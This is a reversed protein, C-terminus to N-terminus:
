LGCIEAFVARLAHYAPTETGFVYSMLSANTDRLSVGFPNIGTIGMWM